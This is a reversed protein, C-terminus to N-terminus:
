IDPPSVRMETTQSSDNDSAADETLNDVDTRRGIVVLVRDIAKGMEDDLSQRTQALRLLDEGSLLIGDRDISSLLADAAAKRREPSLSAKMALDVLQSQADRTAAVSLVALIPEGFAVSKSDAPIASAPIPTGAIKGFEYFAFHEPQSALQGLIQAGTRRFDLREVASLSPLPRSAEIPDLILSWGSATSPLEVHVVPAPWRKDEVAANVGADVLGYLIIPLDGGLPRRRVLDVLEIASRDALMTTSILYRVDGGRELTLLAEEVNHVIEVRYGLSDIVREIMGDIEMRPEVVLVLPERTLNAMELWRRMVYSSGAYPAKYGLRGIAAAAEFRLRPQPHSAAEVLPTLLESHTTMLLDAEDAMSGDIMQLAAVASILDDERLTQEILGALSMASLADAGWVTSVEDGAQSAMLPDLQYRYALEAAIGRASAMPSLEGLRRLLRAHDIVDRWAANVSDVLVHSLTRRDSGITWIVVPPADPSQLSIAARQLALQDVLFTEAEALTPVSPYRQRLWRRAVEREADTAAPDHVAALVIPKVRTDGLRILAALAGARLTDDGYIALQRLAAAGGDGLRLLVRLKEDRMAEDPQQAISLSLQAISENGGALVVRMAALREDPSGSALKEIAPAIRAPDEEYKKLAALMAEAQKKAAAPFQPEVVVRLLRDAGIQQTLEATAEANLNRAALGALFQTAFTDLKLRLADRISGALSEDSGRSRRVLERVYPDALPDEPPDPAVAAAPQRGFIPPQGHAISPAVILGCTFASMLLAVLIGRM